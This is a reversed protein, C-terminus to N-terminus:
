NSHKEMEEFSEDGMLDKSFYFFCAYKDAEEGISIVSNDVIYYGKKTKSCGKEEEFYQKLEANTKGQVSIRVLLLKENLFAYTITDNNETTYIFKEGNVLGQISQPTKNSEYKFFTNKEKLSLDEKSDEFSIAPEPIKHNNCSLLCFTSALILTALKKM